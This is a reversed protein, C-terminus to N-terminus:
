GYEKIMAGVLAGAVIVRIWGGIFWAWALSLPIPMFTYSGFGMPFAVALGILVGYKLGTMLTKEGILFAYVVVFGASFVLTVFYMLLMNMEEMPRWLDATAEYASGLLLGHILFDMVALAFFVAVIALIVKKVM